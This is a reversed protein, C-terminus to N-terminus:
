STSHTRVLREVAERREASVTLPDTALRPMTLEKIEAACAGRRLV